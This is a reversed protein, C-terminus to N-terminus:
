DREGFALGVAAGAQELEELLGPELLILGVLRLHAVRQGVEQHRADGFRATEGEFGSEELV